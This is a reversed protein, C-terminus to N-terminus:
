ITPPRRHKAFKGSLDPWIYGVETLDYGPRHDVKEGALQGGLKEYFRRAPLNYKLVWLGASKAGKDIFENVVAGFLKTGIGHRKAESLIYIAYVEMEQGLEDGRCAGGSAFGVVTDEREAVFVPMRPLESLIKRWMEARGSVSLEDLVSNPVLGGYSERWATVHIHAIADVDRDTAPRIM